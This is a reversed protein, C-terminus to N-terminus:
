PAEKRTFRLRMENRALNICIEGQSFFDYGLMGDLTVGYAESMKELNTIIAQMGPISRDGLTFKNMTGYLVESQGSGVGVLGSRRQISVTSLVKKPSFANLVNSEAGTDLCFDLTKEGVKAKVIIINHFEQINQIVDYKVPKSSQIRYGNRDLRYLHMVNNNIDIVVELNKLLSFGFLGLIKIGRRNEIHGLNTVDVMLNEFGLDAIKLRKVKVHGIAGTSGTVGGAAEGDITMYKRFYTKNLVLNASGTDFIFNGSEDDVTADVVFLKGIRRLPITISEQTGPQSDANLFATISNTNNLMLVPDASPEKTASVWHIPWCLVILLTLVALRVVWRDSRRFM